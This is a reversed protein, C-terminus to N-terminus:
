KGHCDLCFTKYNAGSYHCQACTIGAGAPSHLQVTRTGYADTVTTELNAHKYAQVTYAVGAATYSTAVNGQHCAGEQCGGKWAGAITARVPSTGGHCTECNKAAHIVKLDGKHCDACKLGQWGPALNDGGYPKGDLHPSVLPTGQAESPLHSTKPDVGGYHCLKCSDKWAVGTRHCDRCAVGADKHTTPTLGAHKFVTITKGNYQMTTSPHCAGQQCSKNWTTFSKRPATAGVHCARCRDAHVKSLDGAHCDGCKTSFQGGAAVYDPGFPATGHVGVIQTPKAEAVTHKVATGAGHCSKTCTTKYASGTNHCTACNIAIGTEAYVHSTKDAVRKHQFALVKRAGFTLVPTSPHCAGQQCTKNWTAFSGRPNAGAHCTDCNNKHLKALDGRHCEACKLGTWGASPAYGTDGYVKLHPYSLIGTGITEASTHSKQDYEGLASASVPVAILAFALVALAM